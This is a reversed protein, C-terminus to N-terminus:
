LYHESARDIQDFVGQQTCRSSCGDCAYKSDCPFWRHPTVQGPNEIHELSRLPWRTHTTEILFLELCALWELHWRAVTLWQQLPQLRTDASNRALWSSIGHRCIASEAIDDHMIICTHSAPLRACREAPNVLGIVRRSGSTGGSSLFDSHGLVQPNAPEAAM